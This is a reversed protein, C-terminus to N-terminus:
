IDSQRRGRPERDDIGGRRFHASLDYIGRGDYFSCLRCAECANRSYRAPSAASATKHIDAKANSTRDRRVYRRRSRCSPSSIFQEISSGASRLYLRKYYKGPYKRPKSYMPEWPPMRSTTQRERKDQRRSNDPIQEKTHEAGVTKDTGPEEPTRGFSVIVHHDAINAVTTTINQHVPRGPPKRTRQRFEPINRVTSRDKRYTCKRACRIGQQLCSGQPCRERRPSRQGFVAGRCSRRICALASPSSRSWRKDAKAFLRRHSALHTSTLM